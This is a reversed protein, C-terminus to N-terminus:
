CSLFPSCYGTVIYIVCYSGRYTRLCAVTRKRLRVFGRERCFSSCATVSHVTVQLFDSSKDHLESIDCYIKYIQVVQIVEGVAKPRYIHLYIYLYM